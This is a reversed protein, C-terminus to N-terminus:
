RDSSYNTICLWNSLVTVEVAVLISVMWSHLRAEAHLLHCMIPSQLYIIKNDDNYSGTWSRARSASTDLLRTPRCRPWAREFCRRRSLVAILLPSLVDLKTRLRLFHVSGHLCSTMIIILTMTYLRRQADSTSNIADKSLNQTKTGKSGRLSESLKKM